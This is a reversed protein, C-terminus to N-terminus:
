AAAAANVAPVADKFRVLKREAEDWLTLTSAYLATRLTLPPEERLMEASRYCDALRYNPVRPSLHHIHHFGINGTVWQLWGPLKLFSSGTLAAAQFSWEPARLWRATEFRHQVSFLWVGTITTIAVVPLQVMMVARFGVCVGLLQVCSVIGINTLWVSRREATWKRPTDFPFRYLLLFVLPPFIFHAPFPHRPLRYILRRLPSLLQYEKVTLCATYIDAGHERRDLNNWNAHHQSHQRRWNQYPALTLVSCLTGVIHNAGRSGFFSGHGCDHQVIFTRVLFASAPFALALTLWYSIDLSRYMLAVAAIYFGLSSFLQWCARVVSPREFPAVAARLAARTEIPM